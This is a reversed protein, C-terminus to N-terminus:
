IFRLDIFYIVQVRVGPALFVVARISIAYVAETIIHTEPDNYSFSFM